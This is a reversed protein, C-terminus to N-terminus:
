ASLFAGLDIDYEKDQVVSEVKVKESQEQSKRVYRKALEEMDYISCPKESDHLMICINKITQTPLKMLYARCQFYERAMKGKIPFPPVHNNHCWRLCCLHVQKNFPLTVFESINLEITNVRKICFM